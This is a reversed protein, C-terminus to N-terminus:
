VAHRRRFGLIGGLVMLGATAPEPIVSAEVYAFFSYEHGAQLNTSWETSSFLDASGYFSKRLVTLEGTYFPLTDLTWGDKEELILNGSEIPGEWVAACFTLQGAMGSSFDMSGDYDFIFDSTMDAEHQWTNFIGTWSRASTPQNLELSVNGGGHTAIFVPTMSDAHATGEPQDVDAQSSALWMGMEDHGFDFALDETLDVRSYSYSEFSTDFGPGGDYVISFYGTASGIAALAPQVCLFLVSLVFVQVKIQTKM